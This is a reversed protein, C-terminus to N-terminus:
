RSPTDRRVLSVIGLMGYSKKEKDANNSTAFSVNIILKKLLLSLGYATDM